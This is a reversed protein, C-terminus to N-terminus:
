SSLLSSQYAHTFASTETWRRRVSKRAASTANLPRSRRYCPLKMQDPYAPVYAKRM